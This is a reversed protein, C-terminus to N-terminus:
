ENRDILNGVFNAGYGTVLAPAIYSLLGGALRGRQGMTARMNAKNMINLGHTTALGEDIMTPATALAALALSSDLDDDGAEFVAAAGPLTMLGIGLAQQLKPNSRLQSAIQGVKTQQSALHGLEHAYIERSAKPNITVLSEPYNATSSGAYAPGGEIVSDVRDMFTDGKPFQEYYNFTVPEAGLDSVHQDFANDLKNKSFHTSRPTYNSRATERVIPAATGLSQLAVGIRKAIADMTAPDPRRM